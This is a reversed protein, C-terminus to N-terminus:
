IPRWHTYHPLVKGECFDRGGGKLRVLVKEHKPPFTAANSHDIKIWEPYYTPKAAQLQNYLAMAVARGEEATSIGAIDALGIPSETTTM